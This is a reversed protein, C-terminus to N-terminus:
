KRRGELLKKDVVDNVVWLDSADNKFVDLFNFALGSGVVPFSFQNEEVLPLDDELPLTM